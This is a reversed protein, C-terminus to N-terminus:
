SPDPGAQPVPTLRLVPLQRDTKDLYGKFGPARETVLAWVRERMEGELQDVKVRQKQGAVEVSVDDPNAVINYYWGPHNVAGGASAVVIWGGEGDDFRAVPTTRHQGSRAGMTTLYLLNMGNMRNGTHKHIWTMVPMVIKGVLRPPNSGGRTGAPLKKIAV